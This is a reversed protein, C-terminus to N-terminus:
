QYETGFLEVFELIALCALVIQAAYFEVQPELDVRFSMLLPELEYILTLREGACPQNALLGPSIIIICLQLILNQVCNVM